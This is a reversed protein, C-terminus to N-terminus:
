DVNKAGGIVRGGVWTLEGRIRSYLEGGSDSCQWACLQDDLDRNMWYSALVRMASGTATDEPMGHQPAFYRMQIDASASETDRSTVILARGTRRHLAYAPVPLSRLDFDAPWELVLYGDNGGAEAARWPLVPFFEAIWHPVPRAACSITPLGIWYRDEDAHFAARLGNMDLESLTKGQSLWAAGSCLLGHGCLKIERDAPSWCRVACVDENIRWSLCQTYSGPEPSEAPPEGM